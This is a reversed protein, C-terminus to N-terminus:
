KIFLPVVLCALGVVACYVAFWTFKVKRVLAIMFKCAFLGAVFAAVFGILLASISIGSESPAFGGDLLELFTEGLVPILVMLFSFPAVKDKDNGLLLGTTITAGSRSLGPLVAVAQALGMIFADKYGIPHVNAARRRYLWQSVVLLCATLLLMWGVLTIGDGFLAEVQDKFFMGVIFVPILSLLVRLTLQTNPTNRFRCTDAVMGWLECRFVIITSLVTAAHVIIEFTAGQTEVGFLEKAIILHGSSSVPLFETLGQLLGLLLAEFGSM